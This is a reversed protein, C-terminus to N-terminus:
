NIDSGNRLRKKIVDNAIEVATYNNTALVFHYMPSNRRNLLIFAESDYRFVTTLQRTYLQGARHIANEVKLTKHEGFLSGQPSEMYFYSEIAEFTLGLFSQLKEIWARSIRGNKTLMRNVGVGTPILIWLDVGLGRLAEISSWEVQMGYPDIFALVRYSKNEPKELFRALDILKKNCDESVVNVKRERFQSTVLLTLRNCFDPCKEVFYYLDFIRPNEISLIRTAAGAISRYGGGETQKVSGSGAFGDFYILKFNPHKNMITLYAKAYAEVIDIKDKTWQGGFENM